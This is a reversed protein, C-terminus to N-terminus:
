LIISILPIFFKRKFYPELQHKEVLEKTTKLPAAEGDKRIKATPIEKGFHARVLELISRGAPSSGVIVSGFDTTIDM